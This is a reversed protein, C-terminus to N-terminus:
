GWGVAVALAKEAPPLGAKGSENPRAVRSVEATTM